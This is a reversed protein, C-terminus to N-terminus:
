REQSRTTNGRNTWLDAERVWNELEDPRCLCIGHEREALMKSRARGCENLGCDVLLVGGGRRARLLRGATRELGSGDGKARVLTWIEREEEDGLLWDLALRGLAWIGIAALLALSADTLIQM